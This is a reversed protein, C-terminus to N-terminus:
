RPRQPGRQPPRSLGWAVPAWWAAALPLLTLWSLLHAGVGGGRPGIIVLPLPLTLWAAGAAVGVWGWRRPRWRASVYGLGAGTALLGSTLAGGARLAATGDDAMLGPELVPFLLLLAPALFPEILPILPALRDGLPILLAPWLGGLAGAAILATARARETM